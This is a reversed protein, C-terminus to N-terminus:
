DFNSFSSPKSRVQNVPSTDFRKPDLAILAWDQINQHADSIKDGSTAWVDGLKRDFGKVSSEREDLEVLKKELDGLRKLQNSTLEPGEGKEGLDKEHRLETLYILDIRKASKSNKRLEKHDYYSPQEMGYATTFASQSYRQNEEGDSCPTLM